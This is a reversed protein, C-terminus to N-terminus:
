ILNGAAFRMKEWHYKLLKQIRLVFIIHSIRSGIYCPRGKPRTEVNEISLTVGFKKRLYIRDSNKLSYKKNKIYWIQLHSASLGNTQVHYRSECNFFNWQSTDSTVWKSLVIDCPTNPIVNEPWTLMEM